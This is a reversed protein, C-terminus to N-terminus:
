LKPPRTSEGASVLGAFSARKCAPCVQAVSDPLSRKARVAALHLETTIPRGCTRCATLKFEKNGQPFRRVGGREEVVIAGTPCIAACTACGICADSVTKYPTGAAGKEYALAKQGIIEDCVRVCLGCRICRVGTSDSHTEIGAEHAIVALAPAGPSSAVLGAVIERRRALAGESRTNVVLPETVKYTCATLFNVKDARIVEVTCVRCARHPRVIDHHCLTPIEIGIARAAALITDGESVTTRIGDITIDIM